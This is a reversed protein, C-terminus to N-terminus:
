TNPLNDFKVNAEALAQEVLHPSDFVAHNIEMLSKGEKALKVAIHYRFLKLAVAYPMEIIEQKQQM